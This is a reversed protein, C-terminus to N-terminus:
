CHKRPVFSPMTMIPHGKMTIPNLNGFRLIQVQTQMTSERANKPAKMHREFDIFNLLNNTQFAKLIKFASIKLLTEWIQDMTPPARNVPAGNHGAVVFFDPLQNSGGQTNTDLNVSIDEACM